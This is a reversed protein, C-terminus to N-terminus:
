PCKRCASCDDTLISTGRSHCLNSNPWCSGCGYWPASSPCGTPVCGESGKSKSGSTGGSCTIGSCPDGICSSGEPCYSCKGANPNNSSLVDEKCYGCTIYGTKEPCIEGGGGGSGLFYLVALAVIGLVILLGLIRGIINVSKSPKKPAQVLTPEPVKVSETLAAGCNKCFRDGPNIKEGCKPCFNAM